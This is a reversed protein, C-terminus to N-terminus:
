GSRRYVPATQVHIDDIDKQRILQAFAKLIEDMIMATEGKVPQPWFARPPQNFPRHPRKDVPHQGVKRAEFHAAPQAGIRAGRVRM